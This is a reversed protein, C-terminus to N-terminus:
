LDAMRHMSVRPCEWFFQTVDGYHMGFWPNPVQHGVEHMPHFCQPCRRKWWYVLYKLIAKM